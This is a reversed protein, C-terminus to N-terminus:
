FVLNKFIEKLIEVSISNGATYIIKTDSLLKTKKVKEYDNIDFGMYQYAEIPQMYRIKPKKQNNNFVIKLRSNAGSATLTPGIGSPYYVYAESHFNTYNKLTSKYIGSNSKKKNTLQFKDFNLLTYQDNNFKKLLINKLIKNQIKTKEFFPFNFKIKEKFDKRVSLCFVRERNQASGFNSSNLIYTKSVYGIKELFILWLNYSDIHKQSVINKVNELLLYKPKETQKFNKNIDKFIREVEWLLGSRTNSNKAMGKQKGQISLDQCPFSYTFIDINKPIDKYSVKTIDFLNNAIKKSALM